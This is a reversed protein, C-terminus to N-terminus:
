NRIKAGLEHELRRVVLGVIRDADDDTLTRSADQLILGLGVSKRRSDIGEGRYLDFIRVARLREGAQAEVNEVLVQVPVDEPIVLALDRRVSPYKSYRSFNPVRAAFTPELQLSFM